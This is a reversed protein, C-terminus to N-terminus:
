NQTPQQNDGAKYRTCNPALRSAHSLSAMAENSRGNSMLCCARLVLFEALEENPTLSKLYQGSEVEQNTIPVPWTRYYADPHTVLGAEEVTETSNHPEGDFM